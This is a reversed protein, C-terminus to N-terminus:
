VICRAAESAPSSSSTGNASRCLGSSVKSLIFVAMLLFYYIVLPGVLGWRVWDPMYRAWGQFLPRDLPTTGTENQEDDALAKQVVLFVLTYIDLWLYVWMSPFLVVLYVAQFAEKSFRLRSNGFVCIPVGDKVGTFIKYTKTVLFFFPILSLLYASYPAKGLIVVIAIAAYMGLLWMIMRVLPRRNEKLAGPHTLFYAKAILDSTKDVGLRLGPDAILLGDIAEVLEKPIQEGPHAVSLDQALRSLKQDPPLGAIALFFDQGYVEPGEEKDAVQCCIMYCCVGLAWCDAKAGSIAVPGSSTQQQGVAAEPPATASNVKVILDTLIGDPYDDLSVGFDSLLVTGDEALLINRLALDGHYLRVKRLAKLGECIQQIFVVAAFLSFRHSLERAEMATTVRSLM